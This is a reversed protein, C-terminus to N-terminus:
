HINAHAEGILLLTHLHLADDSFTQSLPQIQQTEGTILAEVQTWQDERSNFWVSGSYCNISINPDLEEVRHLFTRIEDKNLSHEFLIEEGKVILAGNYCAIPEQHIGLRRTITAIGIPSHASTLIFPIKNEQLQPMLEILDPDVQHQQDLITGDIDSVILRISSM